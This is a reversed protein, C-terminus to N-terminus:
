LGEPRVGLDALTFGDDELKTLVLERDGTKYEHALAELYLEVNTFVEGNFEYIDSM